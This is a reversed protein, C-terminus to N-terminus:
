PSQERRRLRASMTHTAYPPNATRGQRVSAPLLVRRDEPEHVRPPVLHDLDHPSLSPRERSPIPFLSDSFSNGANAAFIKGVLLRSHPCPVPTSTRQLHHM